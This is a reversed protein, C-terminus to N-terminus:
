LWGVVYFGLGVLTLSLLTLVIGQFPIFSREFKRRIFKHFEFASFSVAIGIITGLILKSMGFLTSASPGLLNAWYFSLFTSVLGLFILIIIQLPIYETGKNRKKLVRDFWFTTSLIFGGIFLGVALDDIGYLRTVAVAAGTAATCLPCHAHVIGSFIIFFLIFSLLAIKM